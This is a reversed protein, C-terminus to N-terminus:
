YGLSTALVKFNSYVFTMKSDLLTELRMQQPSKLERARYIGDTLAKQNRVGGTVTNGDGLCCQLLDEPPYQRYKLIRM